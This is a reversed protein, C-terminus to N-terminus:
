KKKELRKKLEAEVRKKVEAEIERENVIKRLDDRSSYQRQGERGCFVLPEWGGRDLKYRRLKIRGKAWPLLWLADRTHSDWVLAAEKGDAELHIWYRFKTDQYFGKIKTNALVSVYNFKYRKLLLESESRHKVYEQYNAQPIRYDGIAIYWDHKKESVKVFGSKLSFPIGENAHPHRHLASVSQSTTFTRLRLKLHRRFSTGQESLLGATSLVFDKPEKFKFDRTLDRRFVYEEGDKVPITHCVGPSGVTVVVLPLLKESGKWGLVFAFSFPYGNEVLGMLPLRSRKEFGPMVWMSFEFVVPGDVIYYDRLRFKVDFDKEPEKGSGALVPEVLLAGLFFVLLFMRQM